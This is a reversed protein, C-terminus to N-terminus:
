AMTMLYVAYAIIFTPDTQGPPQAARGTAHFRAFNTLAIDPPAGSIARKTQM